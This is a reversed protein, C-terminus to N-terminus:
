RRRRAQATTESDEVVTAAHEGNLVSLAFAPRPSSPNITIVSRTM